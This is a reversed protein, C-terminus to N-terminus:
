ASVLRVKHSYYPLLEIVQTVVASEGPYAAPASARIRLRYDGAPPRAARPHLVRFAVEKEANPFLIPGPGIELCAPDLGDVELKFQAGTKTGWNRVVVTGELPKDLGLRNSPLNLRLGISRSRKDTGGAGIQTDGAGAGDGYGGMLPAEGQFTLTFDGVQVKDGPNLEVFARPALATEGAAGVKVDSDGMNIMRFGAGGSVRILQLQRRAVGSGRGAELVVDNRADSGVYIIAKELVFTKRWGDRDTVEIVNDDDM